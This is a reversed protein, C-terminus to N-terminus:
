DVGWSTITIGGLILAMNANITIGESESSTDYAPVIVAGTNWSYTTNFDEYTVNM